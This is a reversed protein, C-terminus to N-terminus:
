FGALVSFIFIYLVRLNTSTGTGGFRSASHSRSKLGGIGPLQWLVDVTTHGGRGHKYSYLMEHLCRLVTRCNKVTPLHRRRGTQGTETLLIYKALGRKHNYKSDGPAGASVRARAGLGQKPTLHLQKQSNDASTHKM